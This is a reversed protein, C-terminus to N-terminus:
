RYRRGSRRRGHITKMMSTWVRNGTGVTHVESYVTAQDPSPVALVVLAIPMASSEALRRISRRDIWSPGRDAPHSHWEGVYGLFQNARRRESLEVAALENSREYSVRTAGSDPVHVLEAVVISRASYFGLLFGGTELPLARQAAVTAASAADPLFELTFKEKM